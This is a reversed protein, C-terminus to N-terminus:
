EWPRICLDKLARIARHWASPFRAEDYHIDRGVELQLLGRIFYASTDIFRAWREATWMPQTQDRWDQFGHPAEAGPERTTFWWLEAFGPATGWRYRLYARRLYKAQKTAHYLKWEVSAMQFGPGPYLRTNAEQPVDYHIMWHTGYFTWEDEQAPVETMAFPGIRALPTNDGRVWWEAITQAQRDWIPLAEIEYPLFALQSVTADPHVGPGYPEGPVTPPPRKAYFIQGWRADRWAPDRLGERLRDRYVRYAATPGWQSRPLQAKWAEVLTLAHIAFAQAHVWADEDTSSQRLVQSARTSADFDAMRILFNAAERVLPWAAKLWAQAKAEQHTEALYEGYKSAALVAQATADAVWNKSGPAAPDYVGQPQYNVRSASAGFDASTPDTNQWHRKLFWVTFLRDLSRDYESISHGQKAVYQVAAMFPIVASFLESTKVWAGKGDSGDAGKPIQMNNLAGYIDSMPTIGVWTTWHENEETWSCAQGIYDLEARLGAMIRERRDGDPTLGFQQLSPTACSGLFVLWLLVSLRRRIMDAVGM